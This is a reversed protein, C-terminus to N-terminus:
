LKETSRGSIEDYEIIVDFDDFNWLKEQGENVLTFNVRPSGVAVDLAEMGIDTKSISEDLKAAQSSVDGISFISTVINPITFIVIMLTAMVIAASIAVSLGM